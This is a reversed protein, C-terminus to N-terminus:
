MGRSHLPKHLFLQMGTEHHELNYLWIATQLTWKKAYCELTQQQTSAEFWLLPFSCDVLLARRAFEEEIDFTKAHMAGWICLTDTSLKERSNLVSYPSLLILSPTLIYIRSQRSICVQLSRLDATGARTLTKSFVTSLSLLALSPLM